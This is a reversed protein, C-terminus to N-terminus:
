VYKFHLYGHRPWSSSRGQLLISIPRSWVRRKSSSHVQIGFIRGAPLFRDAPDEQTIHYTRVLVSIYGFMSETPKDLISSVKYEFNQAAVSFTM